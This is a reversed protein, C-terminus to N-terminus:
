APAPTSPAIRGSPAPGSSQTPASTPQVAPAAQQTPLAALTARVAAIEPDEGPRPPFIGLARLGFLVGFLVVLGVAMVLSVRWNFPEHKGPQGGTSPPSPTTTPSSRPDLQTM